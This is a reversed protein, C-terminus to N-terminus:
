SWLQSKFFIDVEAYFSGLKQGTVNEFATSFNNTPLSGLIDRYKDSGFKSLFYEVAKAGKSYGCKISEWSGYNSIDQIRVSKCGEYTDNRWEKLLYDLWGEYNKSTNWTSYALVSYFHAGGESFWIPAGNGTRGVYTQQILHFYEHALVHQFALGELGGPLDVSSWHRVVIYSSGDQCAYPAYWGLSDLYSNLTCNYIALQSRLWPEGKTVFIKYGDTQFGLQSYLKAAQELGKETAIKIDYDISGEYIWLKNDIPKIALTNVTNLLDQIKLAEAYRKSNIPNLSTDLDLVKSKNKGAVGKDWALKRGSKICTYTKGSMVSTLGAKTCSGGAKVAAKVPILPLSLSLSLVSLFTILKKNM